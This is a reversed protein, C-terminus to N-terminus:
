IVFLVLAVAGAVCCLVLAALILEHDLRDFFETGKPPMVNPM